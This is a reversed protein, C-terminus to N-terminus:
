PMVRSMTRPFLVCEKIDDFNMIWRVLREIGIGFGGHPVSGYKRLDLYWSYSELELGEHKIRAKIVDFDDERIGGSSVEGFGNPLLLDASLSTGRTNPDEKVYFPKVKVPFGTIFIPNTRDLTIARESDINLDDGCEISRVKHGDQVKIEKAQLIEIAKEYKLKEFPKRMRSLSVLDAKLFELDNSRERLVAQVVNYVLEEQVKLLDDMGIWPSEAELHLFEALHRITRSKEARFSPGLTWVPGLSFIFAELYLQASQSLYADQDFYKLSFLTSGGEVAGKVITPVSVEMWDNDIFWQRASQIVTARVKSVAVMRRTRIALHRNELLLETSQYEGIPFDSPAKGIVKLEDARVEYGGEKAREDKFVVGRIEVSSEITLDSGLNSKSVCQIVGGRDDRVLVFNKDKQKRLRYVWGRIQVLKGIFNEKKIEDARHYMLCKVLFVAYNNIIDQENYNDEHPSDLLEL